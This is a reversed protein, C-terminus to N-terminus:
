NRRLNLHTVMERKALFETMKECHEDQLEQNELSIVNTENIRWAKIASQFCESVRANDDFKVEVVTRTGVLEEASLAGTRSLAVQRQALMKSMTAETDGTVDGQSPTENPLDATKDSTPSM